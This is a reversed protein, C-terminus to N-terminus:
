MLANVGASTVVVQAPSTPGHLDAVYHALAERLDPLGLNQVYHTAGADLARRGAERILGPTPWASEGFWFPLVDPRGMGENAVERIRSARLSAVTSPPAPLHETM